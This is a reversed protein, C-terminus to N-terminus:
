RGIENLLQELQDVSVPKSIIKGMGVSKAEQELEPHSGIDDGTLGYIPVTFGLYKEIGRISKSAQFGDMEPMHFDMLIGKYGKCNKQYM